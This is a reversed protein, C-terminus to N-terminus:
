CALQTRELFAGRLEFLRSPTFSKALKSNQAARQNRGNHKRPKKELATTAKKSHDKKM